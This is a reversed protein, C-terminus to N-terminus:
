CRRFGRLPFPVNPKGILASPKGSRRKIGEYDQCNPIVTINDKRGGIAEVAKILDRSVAAVHDYSAYADHLVHKNPNKKREIEKEMDNHVWITRSFPAQEFMSIIYNEYGNFHLVAQFRSNGFHKKWERAYAHTLRKTRIGLKMYLGQCIATIVDMNM